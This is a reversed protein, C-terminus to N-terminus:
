LHWGDVWYANLVRKIIRQETKNPKDKLPLRYESGNKDMLRFYGKYLPTFLCSGCFPRLKIKKAQTKYKTRM